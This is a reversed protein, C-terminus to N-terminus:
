IEFNSNTELNAIKNYNQEIISFKKNRGEEEENEEEIHVTKAVKQKIVKFDSGRSDEYATMTDNIKEIVNISPFYTTQNIIIFDKSLIENDKKSIKHYEDIVLKPTIIRVRSSEISEIINVLPERLLSILVQVADRVNEARQLAIVPTLLVTPRQNEDKTIKGFGEVASVLPSLLNNILNLNNVLLLRSSGYSPVIIDYPLFSNKMGISKYVKYNIIDEINLFGRTDVYYFEHFKHALYLIAVFYSIGVVKYNSRTVRFDIVNLLKRQQQDYILMLGGSGLGTTHPIVIGMCFAVAIIADVASGDQKMITARVNSYKWLVNSNGLAITVTVYFGCFFGILRLTETDFVDTYLSTFENRNQNDIDENTPQDSGDPM